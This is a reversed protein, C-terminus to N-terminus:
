VPHDMTFCHINAWPAKCKRVGFIFAFIDTAGGEASHLVRATPFIAIKSWYTETDQFCYSISHFVLLIDAHGPHPQYHRAVNIV